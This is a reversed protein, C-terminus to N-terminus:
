DGTERVIRFGFTSARHDAGHRNRFSLRQQAPASFWSGGRLVRYQCSGSLRASGDALAGDHDPNWCDATWEFVNGRMHALEGVGGAPGPATHVHGDNCDIVTLGPYVEATSLDAVNIGRCGEAVDLLNSGGLRAAYEWEAESPLRYAAGTLESLWAAYGLADSHSVCTVPHDDGQEFGPSSWSRASDEQWDNEPTRCGSPERGTAAVYHRFEAITVEGTGLAFARPFSATYAPTESALLADGPAVGITAVAAPLVLLEPCEPCDRILTGAPTLSDGVAAPVESGAPTEQVVLAEAAPAQGEEAATSTGSAATQSAAPELIRPAFLAVLVAAVAVAAVSVMGWPIRREIPLFGALFEDITRIRHARDLALASKLAQWQRRTLGEPRAPVLQEARAETSQMRSYPHRGTLLEYAVCGFSYVDDRPDSEQGEIMEPSAYAPTLAGLDRPDFVTMDEPNDEPRRFARAIGFDIVKVQGSDTIFANSPKFDAHVIGQNHAHQLASGIQRVYDMSVEMPLRNRGQEAMRRSLPAGSLYEMTIFLVGSPDQYGEIVRVINEHSLSQLKQVERQVVRFANQEAMGSVDMVKVAVEPSRSGARVKFNDIARFVRSMGGQGILEELMFRENLTDGPGPLNGGGPEFSGSDSSDSTLLIPATLPLTEGASGDGLISTAVRTADYPEEADFEVAAQEIRSRIRASLAVPLPLISSQEALTDLLARPSARGDALIADLAAM